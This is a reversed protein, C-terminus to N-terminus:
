ENPHLRQPEDLVARILRQLIERERGVAHVLKVIVGSVTRTGSYALLNAAASNNVDGCAAVLKSIEENTILTMEFCYRQSAERRDPLAEVYTTSM